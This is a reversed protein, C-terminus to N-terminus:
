GRSLDIFDQQYGKLKKITKRRQKESRTNLLEAFLSFTLRQNTDTAAEYEPIWEDARYFMLSRVVKELNETDQRIDLAKKLENASVKQQKLSFHEYVIIENGWNNVLQKQDKSLSGFFPKVYDIVDERHKKIVKERKKTVYDKEYDKREKELNKFLEAVQEDNLDSLTKVIHPILQEASADLLDQVKDSKEHLAADSTPSEDVVEILEDIFSAYIPLQYERHWKHFDRTVKKVYKKQDKDLTVYNSVQWRLYFGLFNYAIKTTCGTVLFLSVIIVLAVKM